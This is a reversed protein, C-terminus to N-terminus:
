AGVAGARGEVVGRLRGVLEGALGGRVEGWRVTRVGRPLKGLIEGDVVPAVLVTSSADILREIGSRPLRDDRLVLAVGRARAVRQVVQGNRGMAGALVVPSGAPAADLMAGAVVEPAIAETALSGIAEEVRGREGIARWWAALGPMWREATRGFAEPAVGFGMVLSWYAARGLEGATFAAPHGIAGRLMARAQVFAARAAGGEGGFGAEGMAATTAYFLAADRLGAALASRDGTARGMVRAQTELMLRPNKSLSGPRVRYAAVCEDVASWRVGRSALRLWLDYDEVVRLSEDFREGDLLDRRLVHSHPSMVNGAFLHEVGVVRDVPSMTVGMSRGDALHLSWSGCAAGLGGWEASQVLRELGLPTLWDDSDLFHVYRGGAQELGRNRAGSLGRNEQRVLGIRSDRWAFDSAIMPTSDTSGDDVVVARWDTLSQNLLSRLTEALTAQANFAPIIVTVLPQM